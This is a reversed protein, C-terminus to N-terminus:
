DLSPGQEDLLRRVEMLAFGLLNLGRWERPDEARPDVAALGIGWVRDVPSAEVLVRDGTNSLFEGLASNQGFKALNGRVVVEFRAEGWKAEDFNRVGRGLKKAAGPHPAALIRGRAGEDGFLRAKEAMMFHEATPYHEGDIEFGAPWWQSLCPKGVEGGSLPQHGWFFVYKPRLGTEVASLLGSLDRIDSVAM